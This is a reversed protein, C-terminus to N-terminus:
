WVLKNILTEQSFLLQCRLSLLRRTVPMASLLALSLLVSDQDGLVTSALTGHVALSIIWVIFYASALTAAPILMNSSSLLSSSNSHVPVLLASGSKSIVTICSVFKSLGWSSSKHGSRIRIQGIPYQLCIIQRWRAVWWTLTFCNLIMENARAFVFRYRIHAPTIYSLGLRTVQIRPNNLYAVKMIWYRWTDNGLISLFGRPCVPM